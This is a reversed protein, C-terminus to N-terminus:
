EPRAMTIVEKVVAAPRAEKESAPTAGMASRPIKEEIPTIIESQNVSVRSGANNAIM